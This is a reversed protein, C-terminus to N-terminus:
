FLLRVKFVNKNLVKRKAIATAKENLEVACLQEAVMSVAASNQKVVGPAVFVKEFATAVPPTTCHIVEPSPVKLLGLAWRGM